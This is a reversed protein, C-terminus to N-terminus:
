YRDSVWGKVRSGRSLNHNLKDGVVGKRFDNCGAVISDGHETHALDGLAYIGDAVKSLAPLCPKTSMKQLAKRCYLRVYHKGTKDHLIKAGLDELKRQVTSAGMNDERYVTDWSRTLLLGM